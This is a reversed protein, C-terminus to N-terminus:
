TSDGEEGVEQCPSLTASPITERKGWMRPVTERKGWMKPITERMGLKRPHHCHLALYLRGRGTASPLTERKGWM